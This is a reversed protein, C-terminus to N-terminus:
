DLGSRRFRQTSTPRYRCNMSLYWANGGFARNGRVKNVIDLHGDGAFNAAFVVDRQGGEAPGSDGDVRGDPEGFFAVLDIEHRPALEALGLADAIVRMDFNSGAGEAPFDSAGFEGSGGANQRKFVAGAHAAGDFGFVPEGADWEDPAVAIGVNFDGNCSSPRNALLRQGRQWTKMKLPVFSGHKQYHAIKFKCPSVGM